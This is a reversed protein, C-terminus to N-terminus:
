KVCPIDKLYYVKEAILDKIRVNVYEPFDKKKYAIYTITKGNDLVSINGSASYANSYFSGDDNVIIVLIVLM